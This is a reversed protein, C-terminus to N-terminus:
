MYAYVSVRIFVHVCVMGRHAGELSLTWSIEDLPDQTSSTVVNAESDVSVDGGV